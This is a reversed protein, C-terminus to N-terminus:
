FSILDHVIPTYICEINVIYVFRIFNITFDNREDAIREKLGDTNFM